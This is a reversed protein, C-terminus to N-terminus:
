EKEKLSKLSNTTITTPGTSLTSFHSLTADRDVIAQPYSRHIVWGERHIVQPYSGRNDVPELDTSNDVAMEVSKDV